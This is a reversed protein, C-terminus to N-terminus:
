RLYVDFNIPGVKKVLFYDGVKELNLVEGNSNINRLIKEVQLKKVDKLLVEPSFNLLNLKQYIEKNNTMIVKKRKRM